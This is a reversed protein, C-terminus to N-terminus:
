LIQLNSYKYFIVKIGFFILRGLIHYVIFFTLNSSVQVDLLQENVWTLPKSSVFTGQGIKAKM